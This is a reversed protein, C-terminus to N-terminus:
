ALAASRMSAAMPSGSITSVAVIGAQGPYEGVLDDLDVGGEALEVARFFHDLLDHRVEPMRRLTQLFALL